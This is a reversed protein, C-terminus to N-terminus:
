AHQQPTYRTGLAPSGTSDLKGGVSARAAMLACQLLLALM